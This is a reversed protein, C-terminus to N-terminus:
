ILQCHTLAITVATKWTDIAVGFRVLVNLFLFPRGSGSARILCADSQIRVNM